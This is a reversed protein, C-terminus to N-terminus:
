ESDTGIYMGKQSCFSLFATISRQISDSFRVFMASPHRLSDWTKPMGRQRRTKEVDALLRRMDKLAKQKNFNAAISRLM